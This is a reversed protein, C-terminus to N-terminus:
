MQMILLDKLIGKKAYKPHDKEDAMVTAKAVQEINPKGPILNPDFGQEYFVKICRPRYFVLGGAISGYFLLPQGSRHFQYL